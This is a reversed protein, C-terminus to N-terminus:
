MCQVRRITSILAILFEFHRFDTPLFNLTNNADWLGRHPNILSVLLGDDCMTCPGVFTSTRSDYTSQRDLLSAHRYSVFHLLGALAGIPTVGGGSRYLIKFAM